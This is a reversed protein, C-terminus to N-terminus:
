VGGHDTPTVSAFFASACFNRSAPLASNRSLFYASASSFYLDATPAHSWGAIRNLM